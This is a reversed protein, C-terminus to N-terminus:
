AMCQDTLTVSKSIDINFVCYDEQHKKKRNVVNLLDLEKQVWLKNRKYCHVNEAEIFQSSSSM